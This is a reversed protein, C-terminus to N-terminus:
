ILLSDLYEDYLGLAVAMEKFDEERRFKNPDIRIHEMSLGNVQPIIQSLIKEGRNVIHEYYEKDKM